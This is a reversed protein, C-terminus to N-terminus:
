DLLQLPALSPARRLPQVARRATGRLLATRARHLGRAARHGTHRGPAEGGHSPQDVCRKASARRGAAVLLTLVAVGGVVAGVIVGALAGASLGDDGDDGSGGGSSGSSGKAAASAGGARAVEAAAAAAACAAVLAAPAPTRPQLRLRVGDIGWGALRSLAVWEWLSAGSAQQSAASLNLTKIGPALLDAARLAAADLCGRQPAYAQAPAAGVPAPRGSDGDSRPARPGNAGRRQWQCHSPRPSVLGPVGDAALAALALYEDLPLVQLHPLPPCSCCSQQRSRPRRFRAWSARMAWRARTRVHESGARAAHRAHCRAQARHSRM